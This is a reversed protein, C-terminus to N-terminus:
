TLFALLLDAGDAEIWSWGLSFKSIGTLGFIGCADTIDVIHWYRTM